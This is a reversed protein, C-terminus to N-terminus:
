LGATLCLCPLPFESYVCTDAGCRPATTACYPPSSESLAAAALADYAANNPCVPSTSGGSDHGADHGADVPPPPMGADHGSDHSTGTDMGMGSDHTVGTDIAMAGDTSMTADHGGSSDGSGAGDSSGGENASTPGDPATSDSTTMSSDPVMMSTEAGRDADLTKTGGADHAPYLASDPPGNGIGTGTACAALAAAAAVLAFSTGRFKM